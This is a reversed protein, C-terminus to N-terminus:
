SLLNLLWKNPHTTLLTHWPRAGGGTMRHKANNFIVNLSHKLCTESEENSMEM